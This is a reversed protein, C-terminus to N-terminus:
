ANSGRKDRAPVILRVAGPQVSFTGPTVGVVDGDLEVPLPPDASLAVRQARLHVVYPSHHLSRILFRGITRAVAVPRTATFAIVDLLGDDRRLGPYLPLWPHIIAAGNAVLVLPSRVQVTIQDTTLTISSPPELLNRAGSPLYALWGVRRKLAPNVTTFLRSDLGAGGMHLFRRGDYLGADFRVTAHPGFILRAAGDIDRPINNDRAVVNTSGAPVIGIPLDVGDLATVVDAVTGDGGCAVVAAAEQLRPRLVDSLPVDPSTWHVDLEVDRPAHRRLSEVVRVANRRMMPNVIVLMLRGARESGGNM